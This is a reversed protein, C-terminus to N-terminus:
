VRMRKQQLTARERIITTLEDDDSPEAVTTPAAGSRQTPSEVYAAPDLSATSSTGAISAIYKRAEPIARQLRQESSLNEPQKRVYMAVIEEHKALDPHEVRFRHVVNENATHARVERMTEERVRAAVDRLVESPRTLLRAALEAERAEDTKQSPYLDTFSRNDQVPAAAPAASITEFRSELDSLRRAQDRNQSELELYAKDREAASKFKEIGTGPETGELEPTTQTETDAM